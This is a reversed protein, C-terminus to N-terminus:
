EAARRMSQTIRPKRSTYKDVMFLWGTFRQTLMLDVMSFLVSFIITERNKGGYLSCSPLFVSVYM